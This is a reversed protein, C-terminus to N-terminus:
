LYAVTLPIQFMTDTSFQLGKSAHAIAIDAFGFAKAISGVVQTSQEIDGQYSRLRLVHTVDCLNKIVHM